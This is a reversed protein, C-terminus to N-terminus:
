CFGNLIFLTITNSQKTPHKAIACQVKFKMFLDQCSRWIIKNNNIKQQLKLFTLNICHPLIYNTHTLFASLITALYVILGSILCDM